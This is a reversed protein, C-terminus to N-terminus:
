LSKINKLVVLSLFKYSARFAFNSYFFLNQKEPEIRYLISRRTRINHGPGGSSKGRRAVTLISLPVLFVLFFM